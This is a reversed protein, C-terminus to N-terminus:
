NSDLRARPSNEAWLARLEEESKQDLEARIEEHDQPGTQRTRNDIYFTQVLADKIEELSKYQAM